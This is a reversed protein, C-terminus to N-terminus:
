VLEPEIFSGADWLAKQTPGAQNLLALRGECEPCPQPRWLDSNRRRIGVCWKTSGSRPLPHRADRLFLITAISAWDKESPLPGTAISRITSASERCVPM